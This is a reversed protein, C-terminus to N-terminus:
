WEPSNGHARGLVGRPDTDIPGVLFVGQTQQRGGLVRDRFVLNQRLSGCCDVVPGRLQPRPEVTPRDGHAELCRAPRQDVRQHLVLVQHQKREIRFLQRFVALGDKGAAGLVIGAVRLQQRPEHALM